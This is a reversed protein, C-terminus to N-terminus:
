RISKLKKFIQPAETLNLKARVILDIAERQTIKGLGLKECGMAEIPDTVKSVSAHQPWLNNQENSGGFCLPIFHDVKYTSRDGSLSYGLDRRYSYFVADKAYSNVARDCYPIKEPHRYRNPNTCLSGPTVRADPSKPYAMSSAHANITLTVLSFLIAFKM